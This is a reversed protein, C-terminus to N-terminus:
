KPIKRTYKTFIKCFNIFTESWYKLIIDLDKKKYYVIADSILNMKTIFFKIKYIMFIVFIISFALQTFDIM